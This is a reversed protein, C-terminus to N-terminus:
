LFLRHQLELLRTMESCHVPGSKRAKEFIFSGEEFVNASGWVIVSTIKYRTFFKIFYVTVLWYCCTNISSFVNTPSCTYSSSNVQSVSPKSSTGQFLRVRGM